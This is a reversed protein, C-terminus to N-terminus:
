GSIRENLRAAEEAAAKLPDPYADSRHFVAVFSGTETDFVYARKGAYAEGIAEHREYRSM